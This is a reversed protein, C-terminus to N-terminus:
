RPFPQAGGAAAGAGTTTTSSLTSLPLRPGTALLLAPAALGAALTSTYGRSVGLPSAGIPLLQGGGSATSPASTVGGLAGLGFASASELMALRVSSSSISSTIDSIGGAPLTSRLPGSASFISTSSAFASTSSISSSYSVGAAASTRMPTAMSGYSTNYTSSFSPMPSAPLAAYGGGGGGGGRDDAAAPAGATFPVSQPARPGLRHRGTTAYPSMIGTLAARLSGTESLSSSTLPVYASAGSPVSTVGSLSQAAGSASALAVASTAASLSAAASRWAISNLHVSAGLPKASGGSNNSNAEDEDQACYDSLQAPRKRATYDHRHPKSARQPQAPEPAPAGREPPPLVPLPPSPVRAPSPSPPRASPSSASAPPAPPTAPAAAHAEATAEPKAQPPPPMSPMEIKTEEEPPSLGPLTSLVPAPAPPAATRVLQVRSPGLALRSPARVEEKHPLPPQPVPPPDSTAPEPEPADAPGIVVIRRQESQSASQTEVLSASAVAATAAQQRLAEAEALASEKVSNAEALAASALQLVSDMLLLTQESTMVAGSEAGGDPSTGDVSARMSGAAAAAQQLIQLATATPGEIAPAIHLPAGEEAVTVDSSGSDVTEVRQGQHQLLEDRAREEVQVQQQEAQQQQEVQQQQQQQQQQQHARRHRPLPTPQTDVPQFKTTFSLKTILRSPSSLPSPPGTPLPLPEAGGATPVPPPSGSVGSSTPSSATDVAAPSPQPAKSPTVDSTHTVSGGESGAGPPAESSNDAVPAAATPASPPRPQQRLPARSGKQVQGADWAQQLMPPLSAGMKAALLRKRDIDESTLTGAASSSSSSPQSTSRFESTSLAAFSSQSSSSSSTSSTSSAVMQHQQQLDHSQSSSQASHLLSSEERESWSGTRSSSSSINSSSSSSTFTASATRNPSSRAVQQQQQQGGHAQAEKWALYRREVARMRRGPSSSLSPSEPASANDDSSAHSVAGAVATEGEHGQQQQEMNHVDDEDVDSDAHFRVRRRARQQQQQSSGGSGSIIMSESANGSVGSTFYGGVKHEEYHHLHTSATADAIRQAYDPSMSVRIEFSQDPDDDGGAAGRYHRRAAEMSSYGSRAGDADDVHHGDDYAGGDEVFAVHESVSQLPQESGGPSHPPAPIVFSDGRWRALPQTLQGKANDDEEAAPQLLQGPSSSGVGSASGARARSAGGGASAGYHHHSSNGPPPTLAMLIEETSIAAVTPSQASPSSISSASTTLLSSPQPSAAAAVAASTTVHTEEADLGRSAAGIGGRGRGRVSVGAKSSFARGEAVTDASAEPTSASTTTTTTTTTSTTAPPRSQVPPSSPPSPSARRKRMAEQLQVEESQRAQQAQAEVAQQAALAAAAEEERQLQEALAIAAAASSKLSSANNFRRRPTHLPGRSGTTIAVASSGSSSHPQESSTSDSRLREHSTAVEHIPELADSGAVRAAANLSPQNGDEPLQSGRHTVKNSISTSTSQEIADIQKESTVTDRQTSKVGLRSLLSVTSGRRSASIASDLRKLMDFPPAITSPGAVSTSTSSGSAVVAVPPQQSPESPLDVIKSLPSKSLSPSAALASARSGDAKTAGPSALLGFPKPPPALLGELLSDDDEDDLCAAQELWSAQSLFASSVASSFLSASM